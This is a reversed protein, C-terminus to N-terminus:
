ARKDSRRASRLLAETERILVPLDTQITDWVEDDKIESYDHVLVARFGIIARRESLRGATEPSVRALKTVAEGIITFEREVAARLMREQEYDAYTRGAVYGLIAEAADNIDQVYKEAEPKM